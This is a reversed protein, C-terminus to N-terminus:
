QQIKVTCIPAAHKDIDSKRKSLQKYWSLLPKLAPVNYFSPQRIGNSYQSPARSSSDYYLMQLGSTRAVEVWLLDFNIGGGGSPRPTNLSKFADNNLMGRLQKIEDDSLRGIHIQHTQQNQWSAVTHELRYSGDDGIEVCDRYSQAAPDSWIRQLSLLQQQAAATLSGIAAL